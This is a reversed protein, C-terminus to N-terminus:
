VYQLGEMLEDKHVRFKKGEFEFEFIHNDYATRNRFKLSHIWLPSNGVTPIRLSGRNKDLAYMPNEIDVKKGTRAM